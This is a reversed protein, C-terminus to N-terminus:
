FGPVSANVTLPDSTARCTRCIRLQTSRDTGITSLPPRAGLAWTFAEASRNSVKGTLRPILRRTLRCHYQRMVARFDAQHTTQRDVMHGCKFRM